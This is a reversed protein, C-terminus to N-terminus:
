EVPHSRRMPIHAIGDEIYEHGSRSFGLAAYWEHLHAQADLVLPESSRDIVSRVLHAALGRGRHDPRTVVRGIRTVTGTPTEDTLTRLYAVIQGEGEVWLHCTGVENDRGDIDAYVCQQEVVFVESRLQLFEHLEGPSLASFAKTVVPPGDGISGGSEWVQSSM